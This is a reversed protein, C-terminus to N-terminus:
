LLPLVDTCYNDQKTVTGEQVHMNADKLSWVWKVRMARQEM